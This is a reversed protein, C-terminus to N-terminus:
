IIERKSSTEEDTADNSKADSKTSTKMYTSQVTM